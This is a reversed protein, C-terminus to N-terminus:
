KVPVLRKLEDLWNLVVHLQPAVLDAGDRHILMLREGDPAAAFETTRPPLVLLERPSTLQFPTTTVTVTLIRDGNRYLLEQGRRTWQPSFGGGNSVQWKRGPGPFPSVFVERQGTEDSEYAIFHGDPSFMPNSENYPTDILNRTTRGGDMSLIALNL